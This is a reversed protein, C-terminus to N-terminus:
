QFRALLASLRRLKVEPSNHRTEHSVGYFAEVSPKKATVERYLAKVWTELEATWENGVKRYTHSCYSFEDPTCSGCDRVQVGIDAYRQKLEDNTCRVWELCDDGLNFEAESGVLKAIFRRGHCNILTTFYSGSPMQGRRLKIYLYSGIVYACNTSLDVWSRMAETFAHKTAGEPVSKTQIHIEAAAMIADASFSGDWQRVDSKHPPGRESCVREYERGLLQVAEDDTGLGLTSSQTPYLAQIAKASRGCLVRDVVQDVISVGCIVRYRGERIKQAKHPENKLFPRIPDRLGIQVCYLPDRAWREREEQSSGLLLKLRHLACDVLNIYEYALVQANSSYILCYPYSPTSDTKVQSIACRILDILGLDTMEGDCLDTELESRATTQVV